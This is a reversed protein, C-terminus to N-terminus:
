VVVQDMHPQAQKQAGAGAPAAPETAPAAAPEAPPTPEAPPVPEPEAVPAAPPPVAEEVRPADPAKAEGGAAPEVPELELRKRSPPTALAVTGRLEVVVDNPRGGSTTQAAQGGGSFGGSAASTGPNIRMERVDLPVASSAMEVLLSDIKRQDVIVKLFFPMLHVMMADPATELTEATLPMGKSDVYIWNRFAADPVGTAVPAAVEEFDPNSSAAPKAPGGGGFRPHGPKPGSGVAAGGGSFSAPDDPNGAAVPAAGSATPKWIRSVTATAPDGEVAMYGVALTQVYPIPANFPGTAPKNVRAILDCLLGYVQLEEQAMLVQVTTPPKEWELSKYLFQQDTPNWQVLPLPRQVMPPAGPVGPPMRGPDTAPRTAAMGVAGTGLMMEDAGMRAPLKRVVSRIMNQYRELLPRPLRGEPKLSKVRQLFDPGLEAPWVRLAEQSDWFRQWERLTEQKVDVTRKALDTAWSDNPHPEIANIESMAKLRSTIDSRRSAIEAALKGNTLLLVPLLILPVLPVLLWFHYKGVFELTPRVSDPIQVM